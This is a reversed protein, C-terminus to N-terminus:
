VFPDVVDCLVVDDPEELGGFLGSCRVSTAVDFSASITCTGVLGVVVFGSLGDACRGGSESVADRLGSGVFSGSTDVILGCNVLLMGGEEVALAYLTSRSWTSPGASRAMRALRVFASAGHEISNAEHASSSWLQVFLKLAHASLLIRVLGCSSSLIV